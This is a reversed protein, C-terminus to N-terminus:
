NEHKIGGNINRKSYWDMIVRALEQVVAEENEFTVNVTVKKSKKM